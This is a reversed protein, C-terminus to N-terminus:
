KASITGTGKQKGEQGRRRLRQDWVNSWVRITGACDCCALFEGSPSFCVRLSSASQDTHLTGLLTGKAVDWIDICTGGDAPYEKAAFGPCNVLVEGALALQAGDPSFAM